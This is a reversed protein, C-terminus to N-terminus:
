IERFLLSPDHGCVVFKPDLAPIAAKVKDASDYYDYYDYVLRSPMTPYEAPPPTIKHTNGDCDMMEEMSPFISCPLHFQDGVFVRLGNTTNVVVSQSGRTHGPTKILRIGEMLDFDGDVKLFNKNAQLYPIVELDFDRRLREAFVTNLLNNWEDKQAISKTSPFLNANGAHDNHLHTYIVLDIDDPKLGEKALSQLLDKSGADAPCGGWAKGDILFRENIGNDILINQKGDQLLYALYPLKLYLEDDFGATLNGKHNYHTGVLLTTAKWKGAGERWIEEAM